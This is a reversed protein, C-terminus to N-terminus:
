GELVVQIVPRRYGREDEDEDKRRRGGGGRRRGAAGGGNMLGTDVSNASRRNAAPAPGQGPRYNIKSGEGSNGGTSKGGRGSSKSKGSSGSRGPERDVFNIDRYDLQQGSGQNRQDPLQIRSLDQASPRSPQNVFNVDRYDIQGPSQRLQIGSLDEASPRAPGQGPAFNIDRYDIPDGADKRRDASEAVIHQREVELQVSGALRVQGQPNEPSFSRIHITRLQEDDLPEITHEGTVLDVTHLNRDVFQVERPHRNPDDAVPNPIERRRPTEDEGRRRRRRPRPTPTITPTETTTITPTISPEPQPQTGPQTETTPTPTPTVDPIKAPTPDSATPQGVASPTGFAQPGVTPIPQTAPAPGPQTLPSTGPATQQTLTGPTGGQPSGPGPQSQTGRGPDPNPTPTISPSPSTRATTQPAPSAQPTSSPQPLPPPSPPPTFSPGGPDRVGPPASRGDRSDGQGETETPTPTPTPQPAPEAQGLPLAESLAATPLSPAASQAVVPGDEQRDLARVSDNPAGGGSDPASPVASATGAIGRDGVPRVPVLEGSEDIRYIARADSGGSTMMFEADGPQSAYVTAEGDPSWMILSNDSAVVGGGGGGKYGVVLSPNTERFATLADGSQKVDRRIAERRRYWTAQDVGPPADESDNQLAHNAAAWRNLLGNGEAALAPDVRSGDTSYVAGNGEEGVPVAGPEPRPRAKPADAETVGSFLISGAAYGYTSPDLLVGAPNGGSAAAAIVEAIIEGTEEGTEEVFGRAVGTTLRPNVKTRFVPVFRGAVRAGIYGGAVAGATAYLDSYTALDHREMWRVTRAAQTPTLGRNILEGQLEISGIVANNQTYTDLIIQLALQQGTEEATLGPFAERLRDADYTAGNVTLDYRTQQASLAGPDSTGGDRGSNDAWPLWSPPRSEETTQNIAAIAAAAEEPTVPSSLDGAIVDNARRTAEERRAVAANIEQALRETSKTGGTEYDGTATDIGLAAAAAHVEAEQRADVRAVAANIEQVLQETSKTGGTEYDGTATDIGLAAAAAHVEAEQRADVRAVAANIEQVLQETSKTGGTEYDGTATDIGLAAAAAYVEAEHRADVRAVAANIEQTLQETSKTGGTEYDGTATDIGLAAAAAYVEAEHRADVRAVAANIEQTLQETSKTGGTEYDGTATDIGLAAAAAHVEAEHRREAQENHGVILNRAQDPTIESVDFGLSEAITLAQADAATSRREAQENHGVILNRAQDPTIESVDFGLSEAIALAESDSAFAAATNQEATARNADAATEIGAAYDGWWEPATTPARPTDPDNDHDVGLTWGQTDTGTWQEQLDRIDTALAALAEAREAPDEIANAAAVRADIASRDANFRDGLGANPQFTTTVPALADPLAANRDAIVANENAGASLSASVQAFYEAGTIPQGDPGVFTADRGQWEANLEDARASLEALRAAAEAPDDPLNALQDRFWAEQAARLDGYDGDATEGGVNDDLTNQRGVQIEAPTATRPLELQEALDAKQAQYAVYEPAKGENGMTADAHGEAQLETEKGDPIGDGDVDLMSDYYAQAQADIPNNKAPDYYANGASDFYVPQGSEPHPTGDNLMPDYPNFAPAAAAVEAAISDDRGLSSAIVQGDPDSITVTDVTSLTSADGTTAAERVDQALDEDRVTYTHEGETYSVTGDAAITYERSSGGGGGGDLDDAREAGSENERWQKILQALEVPTVADSLSASVYTGSVRLGDPVPRGSAIAARALKMAASNNGSEWVKYKSWSGEIYEGNADESGPRPVNGRDNYNELAEQYHAERVEPPGATDRIIRNRESPELQALDNLNQAAAQRAEARANIADASASLRAQETALRERRDQLAKLEEASGPNENWANVAAEYADFDTRYADAETEYRAADQGLPEGDQEYAAVAQEWTEPVLQGSNDLFQNPREGPAVYNPNSVVNMGKRAAYDELSEKGPYWNGINLSDWDVPTGDSNLYRPVQNRAQWAEYEPNVVADAGVEGVAGFGRLYETGDPGPRDLTTDDPRQSRWVEVEAETQEATLGQQQAQYRIWAEQQAAVARDGLGQAADAGVEGVAGFGRLYETGDPGPRDLTTDDPRQSRWAEVEAEVQEATLGQQQAQYRIWAEQQAAGAQAAGIRDGLGQAADAGVEGVAGFGRLYETGDPGPRDLTTDDPRQSRWTEVEAEVQEATLGQQQAQYRIWAEQQAHGIRNGAGLAADARAEGFGDVGAARADLGGADTSLVEDSGGPRIIRGAPASPDDTVAGFGQLYEPGDPGATVGEALANRGGPRQLVEAENGARLGAIQAQIARETLGRREGQYRIWAELGRKTRLLANRGRPSELVSEYRDLDAEADATPEEEVIERYADRFADLRRQCEPCDDTKLRATPHDQYQKRHDRWADAYAEYEQVLADAAERQQQRWENFANSPDVFADSPDVFGTGPEDGLDIPRPPRGIGYEGNGDGDNHTHEPFGADYHKCEWLSLCPDPEGYLLREMPDDCSIILNLM